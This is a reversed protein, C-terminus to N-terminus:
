LAITGRSDRRILLEEPQYTREADPFAVTQNTDPREPDRLGITHVFQTEFQGSPVISSYFVASRFSLVLLAIEQELAAGIGEGMAKIVTGLPTGRFAKVATSLDFACTHSITEVTGPFCDRGHAVKWDPSARRQRITQINDSIATGLWFNEIDVSIEIAKAPTRGINEIDVELSISVSERKNIKFDTLRVENVRIWPRNEATFTAALTDNSRAAEKVTDKAILVTERTSELTRWVFYVGIGTVLITAASAVFMWKAWFAMDQQAQLDQNTSQERAHAEIQKAVCSGLSVVERDKCTQAAKEAAVRRDDAANRQYSAYGQQVKAYESLVIGAACVGLAILAGIAAITLVVDGSRNSDSM